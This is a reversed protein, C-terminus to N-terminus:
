FYDRADAVPASRAYGTAFRPQTLIATSARQRSDTTPARSLMYFVPLNPDTERVMNTSHLDTATPGQIPLITEM